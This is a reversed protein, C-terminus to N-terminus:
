KYKEIQDPDKKDKRWINLSKINEDDSSFFIGFIQFKEFYISKM